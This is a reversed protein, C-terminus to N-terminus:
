DSFRREVRRALVIDVPEASSLLQTVRVCFEKLVINGSRKIGYDLCDKHWRWFESLDRESLM